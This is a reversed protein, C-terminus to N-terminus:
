IKEAEQLWESHSMSMNSMNNAFNLADRPVDVIIEAIRNQLFVEKKSELIETWKMNQWDDVELPVDCFM